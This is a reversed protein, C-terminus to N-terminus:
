RILRMEGTNPVLPVNSLFPVNDDSTIRFGAPWYVFFAKGLLYRRPVIGERTGLDDLAPYLTNWMRGDLSRFSNDGMAFFEDPGLTLPEGANAHRPWTPSSQTYYLDRYVKVHGLTCAGGVAVRIEPKNTNTLEEEKLRDAVALADAATWPNDRTLVLKGDIFVRVSHDVNELAVHYAHGAEPAAYAQKQVSSFLQTTPNFQQVDIGNKDWVVQYENLPQGVTMTISAGAADAPTWMTEARLDGVRVLYNGRVNGRNLLLDRTDNNYGLVNFTRPETVDFQMMGPTTGGYSLVPGGIKWQGATDGAGSWPTHFVTGDSRPMGADVPYYDNDYVLQWVAKQIFPPKRAIFLESAKTHGPAGIYIDGNIVEVTEGPLGILRKIFNDKAQMPEKFVIVDFRHPEMVAYLYKLVLIRDGNNDWALSVPGVASTRSDYASVPPLRQPLESPDIAYQCNPCIIPADVDSVVTRNSTLETHEKVQVVENRGLSPNWVYEFVPNGDRKFAYGCKPCIVDFHAGLLTPAMSGTPIVFAEVVFARFTLALILAIIIAEITDVISALSADDAKPAPKPAAPKVAAPTPPVNAAAVPAAAAPETPRAPPPPSTSAPTAPTSSAPPVYTPQPGGSYLWPGKEQPDSGFPNNSSNSM